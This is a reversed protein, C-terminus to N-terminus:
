LRIFAAREREGAKHISEWNNQATSSGRRGSGGQHIGSSPPLTPPPPTYFADPVVDNITRLLALLEEVAKHHARSQNGSEKHQNEPCKKELVPLLFFLRVGNLSCGLSSWHLGRSLKCSDSDPWPRLFIYVTRTHFRVSFWHLCQQLNSTRSMTKLKDLHISSVACLYTLYWHFYM